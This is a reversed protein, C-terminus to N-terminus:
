RQNESAKLGLGSVTVQSGHIYTCYHVGLKWSTNRRTCLDPPIGKQPAIKDHEVPLM